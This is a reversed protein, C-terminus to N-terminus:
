QVWYSYLSAQTLSFRLSIMQGAIKGGGTKWKVEARPQDGGIKKSKALTEGDADLAEVIVNGGLAEVNVSLRSSHAKFRKTVVVGTQKGADFSVFGDRRLIALCIAGADKELGPKPEYKGTPFKGVYNFSARYKLGTYYFWLEDDRVIPHSPPLIQTLDYAGANAPSPGIFPRRNGLRKWKHLDRSTVLGILHFGDTNPYNPVKGTSHFMAPMGMYLGEYRFVGMNYVQVNYVKPDVHFMPLLSKNNIRAEINRRGLQQDKKDAHFILKPKTWALFDKSTSLYVSRGYPGRHKVTALFTRSQEDYSLNSEDQSPVAHATKLPTWTIGDPSVVAIRSRNTASLGKFRHNPNKTHPDYVASIVSRNPQKKTKTWHLGDKSEYCAASILWLKYVKARPDWAPASRTQLAVLKDKTMPRIVAGLKRPTHMRRQVNKTRAVGHDDVFLQRQNPPVDFEGASAVSSFAFCCLLITRM